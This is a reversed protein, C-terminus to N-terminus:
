TIDSWISKLEIIELAELCYDADAKIELYSLNYDCFSNSFVMYALGDNFFLEISSTDIVAKIKFIDGENALPATKDSCKVTRDSLNCEFEQGFVSFGLKVGEQMRGSIELLYPAQKIRIRKSSEESIMIDAFSSRTSYLAELEKIPEACVCYDGCNETLSLEMPISMQGSFRKTRLDGRDWTIRVTKGDPLNSFTQGAYSSRGFHLSKVESCPVFSGDKFEGVLYKDRAGMLIWRRIGKENTLPFIDPCESDGTIRIKQLMSWETLNESKLVAYMDDELYLAMVYCNLEDCFVVKPDRNSGVINRVVPNGPYKCITELNDASYAIHQSFPETATYFLLVPPETGMTLGSLNDKDIIASGSFMMGTEDPFLTADKEEWHLLDRSVAHGWHMNDWNPECPNYQYFMHYEGNIYILGNPDNLWGCKATFHVQPRTPEHYVDSIDISDAERYSIRMEPSVTMNLEQGIFRSVDVYAYFDPSINDLRINLKYVTRGDSSRFTLTKKTLSTNVPFVLYKNKIKM